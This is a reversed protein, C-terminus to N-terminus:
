DPYDESVKLNALRFIIRLTQPHIERRLSLSTLMFDLVKAYKLLLLYGDFDATHTRLHEAMRVMETSLMCAMELELQQKASWAQQPQELLKVLFAQFHADSQNPRADM